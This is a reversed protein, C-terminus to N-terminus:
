VVKEKWLRKECIQFGRDIRTPQYTIAYPQGLRQFHKEWTELRTEDKKTEIKQIIDILKKRPIQSFAQPSPWYKIVHEDQFPYTM